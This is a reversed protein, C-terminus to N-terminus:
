DFRTSDPITRLTALPMVSRDRDAAPAPVAVAILLAAWAIRKM